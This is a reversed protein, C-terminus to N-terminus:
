MGSLVVPRGGSLIVWSTDSRRVIGLDPNDECVYHGAAVRRMRLRAHLRLTRVADGSLHARFLRAGARAAARLPRVRVPATGRPPHSPAGDRPESPVERM